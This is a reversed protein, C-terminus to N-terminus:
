FIYWEWWLYRIKKKRPCPRQDNMWEFGFDTTKKKKRFWLFVRFFFVCGTNKKGLFLEYAMWELIPSVLNIKKWFHLLIPYWFDNKILLSQLYDLIICISHPKKCFYSCVFLDIYLFPLNTQFTIKASEKTTARPFIVKKKPTLYQKKKKGFDTNKKTNKKGPFTWMDNM